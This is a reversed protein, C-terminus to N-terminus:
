VPSLVAFTTFAIYALLFATAEIRGLKRDFVFPLVLVSFVVMMVSDFQITQMSVNIPQVLATIGLIGLVNFINSGVVNGIAIDSEQRITAMVSTVLEPLSTGVAVLTVGIVLESVGFQRALEPANSVTLQAGIMLVVIGVVLRLLERGRRVDFRPTTLPFCPIYIVM